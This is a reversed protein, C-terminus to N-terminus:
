RRKILSAVYVWVSLVNNPFPHIYVALAFEVDPNENYHVGTARMAETIAEMNTYPVNIPFGCMKHSGLIHQLEQLHDPNSLSKSNWTAYELTPLLKRLIAICYRNWLTRATRRWKMLSDKLQKEIRDQLLQTASTATATYELAAPQVSGMPAGVTKGFAPMWDSRRTVDFKTRWPLEERQVNVWINEDNILCYVKQLPCFSDQISYKQGSAPDWLWYSFNRLHEEERTLVYATPGHPIGTGLLLWVKKGLHMLYCCLLVAHDESDGSLLRLVQDSTLWIDFLGPFLTSGGIMPIMAVFRAAMEETVPEGEMLVPPALPRFFRTVCVSKGSIDIVLTKVKRNPVQDTVQSEWKQLHEEVYTLESSELKEKFPEPPNLAPQVTIFLTLFTADRPPLAQQTEGPVSLGSFQRHHSEKEYGLLVPPSYLKFTGEIRSNFYLTSFPIQLSGLWNRELRQHINTERMRDDELLDVVIEDFLHLYLNDQISQLSGPSYDGSPPKLPLQLDQNWTPNAGEAATTRASVGQFSVEVFPRVPVTSFRLGQQGGSPGTVTDVDKRVPVEFAHVVNVIIKVDQGALNQMTVKKREKRTPRLPRKPQLWKMFTLGLTGIDPVQDEMVIDQLQRHQQALRCQKLVRQRVKQLFRQGWDRHSELPDSSLSELEPDRATLRKEYIKFVDAPIEKDRLPVLRLGRFEPEGQDRLRLLRLRTNVELDEMKCFDFEAQLPDLRFYNPETNFGVGANKIFYFFSANSPDNSDLQSKEAWERLKEIDMAGEADLMAMLDTRCSSRREKTWYKEPPCLIKEEGGDQVSNVGWGVRCVLVGSTNLCTVEKNSGEPFPCLYTGSGVGAHNFTLVQNSSFEHRELSCNQLTKDSSPFPIYLEAVLHHALTGGEEHIEVKLSEPWQLIRISFLQGISVNFRSGLPQPRSSCVEKQNYFIKVYVDCRKVAARRQQENPYSPNQDVHSNTSLELYLKPEGPPRFSQSFKEMAESRVIGMDVKAPPKPEDESKLSEEVETEEDSEKEILQEAARQRKKRAERMAKRRKKWLTLKETYEDLQKNYEEQYEEELEEIEKRIEEDWLRSEAAPDEAFEKHIQLRLPTSTYGQLERLKKLDRWTTLLKSLIKRDNYGEAQRQRRTERIETIYKQLRELQQQSADPTQELTKKLSDRARRLAELRGALRQEQGLQIRQNYKLYLESVRQALVHERSFLPHHTFSVSCIDVDLLYRDEVGIDGPQVIYKNEFDSIAAPKYGVDLFPNIDEFMPPRFPVLRRPDPQSLIEGDDGFWKRDGSAVLRQELKNKNRYAVRLRTGVYLGEDEAYRVEHEPNLKEDLPVPVTSPSFYLERERAEQEERVYIPEAVQVLEWEDRLGLYDATVLKTQEEGSEIEEEERPPSGPSTPTATLPEDKEIEEEEYVQTFFDYAAEASAGEQVADIAEKWKARANEHRELAEGVQAEEKRILDDFRSVSPQNLRRRRLRSRVHTEAVSTGARERVAQFRDRLRDRYSRSDSQPTFSRSGEVSSDGFSHRGSGISTIDKHDVDDKVLSDVVDQEKDKLIPSSSSSKNNDIEPTGVNEVSSRKSHRSKIPPSDTITFVGRRQRRSGGVALTDKVPTSIFTTEEENDSAERPIDRSKLRIVDATEEQTWASQKSSLRSSRLVDVSTKVDSRGEEADFVSRSHHQSM